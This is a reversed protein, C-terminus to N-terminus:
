SNKQNYKHSNSMKHCTREDMEFICVDEVSFGYDEVTEVHIDHGSVQYVDHALHPGAFGGDDAGDDRFVRHAGARFCRGAAEVEGAEVGPVDGVEAAADAHHELVELEQCVAGHLVVQFEDEASGAPFFFPLNVAADGLDKRGDAHGGLRVFHGVLEGAALLLADGDGAGQQVFRGDDQGVFGGAVQVAFRGVFDELEELAEVGGAGGDHHDGVVAVDVFLVGAADEGALGLVAVLHHVFANVHLKLPPTGPGGGEWGRDTPKADGTRM